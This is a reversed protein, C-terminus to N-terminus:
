LLLDNCIGPLSIIGVLMVFDGCIGPLTDSCTGKFRCM